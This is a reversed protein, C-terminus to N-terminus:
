GVLEISMTMTMDMMMTIPGEPAKPALDGLGGMVMEMSLSTAVDNREALGSAQNFWVTSTTVTPSMSYSLDFGELLGMALEDEVGLDESTLLDAISFAVAPTESITEIVYIEAGSDDLIDVLTSMLTTVLPQGPLFESEMTSSWSDGIAADGGPLPPGFLQAGNFSGLGPQGGFLDQALEVGDVSTSLITGSEDIIYIVASDLPVADEGSAAAIADSDTLEFSEGGGEVSMRLFEVEGITQTVQHTGAGLGPGFTMTMPMEMDMDVRLPGDFDEFGELGEGGEVNVDMTM